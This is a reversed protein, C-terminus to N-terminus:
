LRAEESQALKTRVKNRCLRSRPSSCTLFKKWGKKDEAVQRRSSWSIMDYYLLFSFNQYENAIIEIRHIRRAPGQVLLVREFRKTLLYM